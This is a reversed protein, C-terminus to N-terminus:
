EPGPRRHPFHGDLRGPGHLVFAGAGALEEDVRAAIEEEQLHVRSELHLVRDGLHDGPDVEDLLLDAHRGPLLEGEPLLVHPQRPWAMSHRM